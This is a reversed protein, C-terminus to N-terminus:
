KNWKKPIENDLLLLSLKGSFHSRWLIKLLGLYPINIYCVFHFEEPRSQGSFSELGSKKHLVLKSTLFSGLSSKMNFIQSWLRYEIEFSNKANHCDRYHLSIVIQNVNILNVHIFIKYAAPSHISQVQEVFIPILCSWFGCDDCKCTVLFHNMLYRRYTM